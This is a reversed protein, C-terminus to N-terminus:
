FGLGYISVRFGSFRFDFRQTYGTNENMRQHCTYSISIINNPHTIQTHAFTPNAPSMNHMKSLGFLQLPGTDHKQKRPVKCIVCSKHMKRIKKVKCMVHSNANKPHTRSSGRWRCTSYNNYQDTCKRASSISPSIHLWGFNGSTGVLFFSFHLRGGCRSLLVVSMHTHHSITNSSQGAISSIAFWSQSGLEEWQCFLGHLAPNVPDCKQFMWKNPTATHSGICGGVRLKVAPGRAQSHPPNGASLPEDVASIQKPAIQSHLRQSDQRWAATGSDAPAYRRWSSVMECVVEGHLLSIVAWRAM